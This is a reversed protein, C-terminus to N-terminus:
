GLFIYTCRENHSLNTASISSSGCYSVRRRKEDKKQKGLFFLKYSSLHSIHVSKGELQTKHTLRLCALQRPFWMQLFAESTGMCKKVPSPIQQHQQQAVCCWVKKNVNKNFSNRSFFIFSFNTQFLLGHWESPFIVFFFFLFSFSLKNEEGAVGTSIIIVFIHTYLSCENPKDKGFTMM